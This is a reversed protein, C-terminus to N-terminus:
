MKTKEARLLVPLVCFLPKLYASLCTYPRVGLLKACCCSHQTRCAPTVSFDLDIILSSNLSTLTLSSRKIENKPRMDNSSPSMVM